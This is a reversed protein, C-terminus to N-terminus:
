HRVHEYISACCEHVVKFRIGNSVLYNLTAISPFSIGDFGLKIAAVEVTDFEEGRPRMCGLTLPIDDLKRRAYGLLRIIYHPPPPDSSELPTGPYPTFIVFVAANPTLEKLIDVAEFEKSPSGRYLGVIIHPVVPIDFRKLTKLTRVYAEVDDLGLVEKIAGEHLVLDVLVADIGLGKILSARFDDVIGVHMFVKLGLSKLYKIANLYGEFPVRGFRDCGGSLLVGSVGESRLRNGLLVLGDPTSVGLMNDLLKGYCHKCMLECKRGTLSISPFDRGVIGLEPVEYHMNSTAFVVVM